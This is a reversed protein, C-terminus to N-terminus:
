YYMILSSNSLAQKLKVIIIGNPMTKMSTKEYLNVMGIKYIDDYSIILDLNNYEFYNITKLIEKKKNTRIM